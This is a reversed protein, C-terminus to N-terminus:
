LGSEVCLLFAHQLQLTKDKKEPDLLVTIVRWKLSQETITSFNRSKVSQLKMSLFNILTSPKFLKSDSQQWRWCLDLNYFIILNQQTFAVTVFGTQIYFWLWKLGIWCQYLRRFDSLRPINHSCLHPVWTVYYVTLIRNKSEKAWLVPRPKHPCKRNQFLSRSM